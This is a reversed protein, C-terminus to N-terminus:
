RRTKRVRHYFNVYGIFAMATVALCVGILSNSMRRSMGPFVLLSLMVAYTVATCVKGYWMAGDMRFGRKLMVLGTIGMFGEKVVYLVFVVGMLPFRFALSLAVAAMTLKDAIPDILKGWETIMNFHRAIKGDLMDTLGSIVIVLAAWYYGREDEANFYVVLYVPILILRFYSLINPISFYEHLMDKKM